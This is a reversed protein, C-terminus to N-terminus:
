NTLHINCADGSCLDTLDRNWTGNKQCFITQPQVKSVYGTDCTFSCTEEFQSQCNSEVSGFKAQGQCKAVSLLLSSPSPLTRILNQIFKPYVDRTNFL